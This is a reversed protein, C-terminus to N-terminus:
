QKHIKDDEAPVCFLHVAFDLKTKFKRFCVIPMGHRLDKGSACIQRYEPFNQHSFAAIKALPDDHYIHVKFIYTTYM